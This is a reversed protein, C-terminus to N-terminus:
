DHQGNIPGPGSLRSKQEVVRLIGLVALTILTVALALALYQHHVQRELGIAGGLVAAVLPRICARLLEPWTLDSFLPTMAATVILAIRSGSAGTANTKNLHAPSDGQTRTRAGGDDTQGAPTGCEEQCRNAVICARAVRRVGAQIGFAICVVRMVNPVRRVGPIRVFGRGM